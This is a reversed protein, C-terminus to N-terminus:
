SYTAKTWGAQPRTRMFADYAKQSATLFYLIAQAKVEGKWGRVIEVEEFSGAGPQGAPRDGRSYIDKGRLTWLSTFLFGELARDMEMADADFDTQDSYVLKTGVLRGYNKIGWVTDNDRGSDYVGRAQVIVKGAEPNVWLLFQSPTKM